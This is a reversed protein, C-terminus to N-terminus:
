SNVQLELEYCWFYLSMTYLLRGRLFFFYGRLSNEKETQLKSSPSMFFKFFSKHYVVTCDICSLNSLMKEHCVWCENAQATGNKKSPQRMIMCKQHPLVEEEAIRAKRHKMDMFSLLAAQHNNNCQTIFSYIVDLIRYLMGRSVRNGVARNRGELHYREQSM